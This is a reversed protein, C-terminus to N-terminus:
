VQLAALMVLPDECNSHLSICIMSVGHAADIVNCYRQTSSQMTCITTCITPLSTNRSAHYYLDLTVNLMVIIVTTCFLCAETETERWKNLIAIETRM